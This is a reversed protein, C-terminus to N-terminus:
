PVFNYSITGIVKVPQGALTTPSFKAQRAAAVAAAQLLPHGSIAQASVVNGEEDIIVQVFVTGSARAARAIPPYAPKPLSTAKGNLVGGSIPARKTPVALAANNENAMPPKISAPGGGAGSPEDGPMAIIPSPAVMAPKSETQIHRAQRKRRTPKRRRPASKVSGSNTNKSKRMPPKIMPPKIRTSGEQRPAEQQAWALGACVLLSLLLAGLIVGTAGRRLKNLDFM